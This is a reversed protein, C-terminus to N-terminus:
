PLPLWSRWYDVIQDIRRVILRRNNL